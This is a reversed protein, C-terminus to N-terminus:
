SGPMDDLNMADLLDHWQLELEVRGSRHGTKHVRQLVWSDRLRKCRRVEQIPIRLRGQWPWSSLSCCRIHWGISPCAGMM